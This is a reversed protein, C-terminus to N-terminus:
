TVDWDTLADSLASASLSCMLKYNIKSLKTLYHAGFPKAKDKKLM